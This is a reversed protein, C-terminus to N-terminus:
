YMLMLFSMKKIMEDISEPNSTCLIYLSEKGHVDVEKLEKTYDLKGAHVVDDKLKTVHESSEKRPCTHSPGRAM